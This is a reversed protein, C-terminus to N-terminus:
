LMDPHVMWDIQWKGDDGRKLCVAACELFGCTEEPAGTLASVLRSVFPLHGVLMIDQDLADLERAIDEVPDNPRLDDRRSLLDTGSVAEALIKATQIARMKASHWIADVSVARTKLCEALKGAQARGMESLPREIDVTESVAHGHRVIYLSGM